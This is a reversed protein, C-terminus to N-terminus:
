LGGNKAGGRYENETRVIGIGNAFYYVKKGGRYSWGETMGGIDLCLKLCNEFTGAKTTVTGGDECTIQTKVTRDWKTYEVIPSTGM